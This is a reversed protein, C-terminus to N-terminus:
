LKIQSVIIIIVVIIEPTILWSQTVKDWKVYIIGECCSVYVAYNHAHNALTTSLM